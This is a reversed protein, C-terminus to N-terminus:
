GRIFFLFFISNIPLAYYHVKTSLNEDGGGVWGGGGGESLLMIVITYNIVHVRVHCM